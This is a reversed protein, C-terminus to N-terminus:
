EDRKLIILTFYDLQNASLDDLNFWLNEEKQGVRQAVVGKYGNKKAFDVIQSFFKHPKMFVLNKFHMYKEPASLVKEAPAILVEEEGLTLPLGFKASAASFSSIGPIIELALGKNLLFPKLYYFTCYFAPDGLTIFVGEGVRSLTEYIIQALEAWTDTLDGKKMPFHLPILTKEELPILEKIISLALTERGGTPYFITKTDELVKLGKLSVLQPDGPGVGVVYLKM